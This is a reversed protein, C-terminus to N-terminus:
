AVVIEPSLRLAAATAAIEERYLPNMVIISEIRRGHLAEPALVPTGTGPAFRGQKHPNLDILATLRDAGPVVNVFTIGKSGAGWVVVQSPDRAVLYDRWRNIKARHANDFDRVLSGIEEAEPSPSHEHVSGPIAEVYLYQEGFSTGADILDFGAAEFAMRLSPLTFYSVHEYILDWIGLDRLTYLANPVEFYLATEPKIGPHARLGRLFRVPDAIHELVHRCSVFDPQLNAYADTFWDNVFEVGAIGPGRSVEFSKDFGVGQAGSIACLRKLFDGKGCGIDVVTRGALEYTGSLRKVLEEAFVGFRASFHLSTEYGQTYGVRDQEFAANFAHTCDRCLALMFRGTAAGRASAADPHLANCLVPLADFAIAPLLDRRGCVPCDARAPTTV